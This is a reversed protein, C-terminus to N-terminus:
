QQTLPLNEPGTIEDKEAPNEEMDAPSEELSAEREEKWDERWAESDEFSELVPILVLAPPGGIVVTGFIFLPPNTPLAIVVSTVLPNVQMPSKTDLKAALPTLEPDTLLPLGAM